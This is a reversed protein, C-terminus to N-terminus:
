NIETRRMPLRRNFSLRQALCRVVANGHWFDSLIHWNPLIVNSSSVFCVAVCVRVTWQKRFAEDSSLLSWLCPLRRKGVLFRANGPLSVLTGRCPFSREGALFRTNGPLPVSPILSPFLLCSALYFVVLFGGGFSFETGRSAARCRIIYIDNRSSYWYWSARLVISASAM